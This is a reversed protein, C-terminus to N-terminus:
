PWRKLTCGDIEAVRGQIRGFRPRRRRICRDRQGAAMPARLSRGTVTVTTSLLIPHGFRENSGGGITQDVANEDRRHRHSVAEKNINKNSKKTLPIRGRAALIKYEEVYPATDFTSQWYECTVCCRMTIRFAADSLTKVQFHSTFKM